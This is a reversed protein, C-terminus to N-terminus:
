WFINLIAIDNIINIVWFFNDNIVEFVYKMLFIQISFVVTKYYIYIICINLMSVHFHNYYLPLTTPWLGLPLPELGPQLLFFKTKRPAHPNMSWTWKDQSPTISREMESIISKDLADTQVLFPNQVIWFYLVQGCRIDVMWDSFYFIKEPHMLIWPGLENLKFRHSLGRWKRCYHVQGNVSTSNFISEICGPLIVTTWVLYWGNLGFITWSM